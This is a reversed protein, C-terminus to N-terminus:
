TPKGSPMWSPLRATTWTGMVTVVPPRPVRLAPDDEVEPVETPDAEPPPEKIECNFDMGMWNLPKM